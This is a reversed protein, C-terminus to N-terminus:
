VGTHVHIAFKKSDDRRTSNSPDVTTVALVNGGTVGAAPTMAASRAGARLRTALLDSAPSNSSKADEDKKQLKVSERVM